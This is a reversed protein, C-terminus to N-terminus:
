HLVNSPFLSIGLEIPSKTVAVPHHCPPPPVLHSSNKSAVLPPKSSHCSNKLAVVPPMLCHGSNKSAVVPPKSCHGSNKSAMQSPKLFHGCLFFFLGAIKNFHFFIQILFCNKNSVAKHTFIHVFIPLSEVLLFM